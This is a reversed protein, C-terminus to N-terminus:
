LFLTVFNLSRVIQYTVKEGEQALAAQTEALQRTLSVSMEVNVPAAGGSGGGGGNGGNSSPAVASEPEAPNRFLYVLLGIALVVAIAASVWWPLKTALSLLGTSASDPNAIGRVVDARGKWDLAAKLGTYGATLIIGGIVTLVKKINRSSNEMGEFSGNGSRVRCTSPRGVVRV